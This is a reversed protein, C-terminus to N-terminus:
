LDSEPLTSSHNTLWKWGYQAGCRILISHNGYRYSPSASLIYMCTSSDKRQILVTIYMTPHAWIVFSIRIRETDSMTPDRLIKEKCVVYKLGLNWWWLFCSSGDNEYWGEWRRQIFYDLCATRLWRSLYKSSVASRQNKAKRVLKAAGGYASVPPIMSRIGKVNRKM